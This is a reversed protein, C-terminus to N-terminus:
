QKNYMITFNFLYWNMKSISSIWFTFTQKVRVFRKGAINAVFQKTNQNKQKGVYQNVIFLKRDPIILNLYNEKERLMDNLSDLTEKREYPIM